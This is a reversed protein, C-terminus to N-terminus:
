SLWIGLKEIKRARLHQRTIKKDVAVRGHAEVGPIGFREKALDIGIQKL